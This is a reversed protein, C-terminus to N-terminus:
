SSLSPPHAQSNLTATAQSPQNATSCSTSPTPAPTARCPSLPSAKASRPSSKQKPSAMDSRQSVLRNAPHLSTCHFATSVSSLKLVAPTAPLVGVCRNSFPLEETPPSPIPPAWTVEHGPTVRRGGGMIAAALERASPSEPSSAVPSSATGAVVLAMDEHSSSATRQGAVVCLLILLSAMGFFSSTLHPFSM